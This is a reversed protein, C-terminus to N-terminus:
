CSTLTAAMSSPRRRHAQRTDPSRRRRCVPPHPATRSGAAIYSVLLSAYIREDKDKSDLYPRLIELLGVSEAQVAQM